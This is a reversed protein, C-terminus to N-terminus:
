LRFITEHHKLTMFHNIITNKPLIYHKSKKPPWVELFTWSTRFSTSTSSTHPQTKYHHKLPHNSPSILYSHNRRTAQCTLPWFMWSHRQQSWGFPGWPRRLTQWALQQVLWFRATAAHRAASMSHGFINGQSAPSDCVM